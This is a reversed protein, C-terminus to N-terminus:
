NVEQIYKYFLLRQALENDLKEIKDGKRYKVGDIVLVGEYIVEYVKNSQKLEVKEKNEYEKKLKRAM